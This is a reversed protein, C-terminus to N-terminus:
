FHQLSACWLMRMRLFRIQNPEWRATRVFLILGREELRFGGCARRFDWDLALADLNPESGQRLPLGPGHGGQELEVLLKQTLLQFSMSFSTNSHLLYFHKTENLIGTIRTCKTLHFSNSPIWSILLISCFHEDQLVWSFILIPERPGNERQFNRASGVCGLSVGVHM